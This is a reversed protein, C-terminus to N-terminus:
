LIIEQCVKVDFNSASKIVNCYKSDAIQFEFNGDTGQLNLADAVFQLM